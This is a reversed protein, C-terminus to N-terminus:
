NGPRYQLAHNDNKNPIYGYLQNDNLDDNLQQQRISKDYDM